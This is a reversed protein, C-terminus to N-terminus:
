PAKSVVRKVKPAGKEIANLLGATGKVAPDLFDKPGEINFHFPSATHIVAEFPPDWKVVEDFADPESVDQVIAFTLRGAPLNAYSKEINM